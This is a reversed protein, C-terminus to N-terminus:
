GAPSAAPPQVLAGPKAKAGDAGDLAPYSALVAVYVAFAISALMVAEVLFSRDIGALM